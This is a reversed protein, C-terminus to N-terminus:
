GLVLGLRATRDRARSKRVKKLMRLQSEFTTTGEATQTVWFFARELDGLKAAKPGTAAGYLWVDQRFWFGFAHRTWEIRVLIDDSLKNVIVYVRVTGVDDKRRNLMPSMMVLVVESPMDKPDRSIMPYRIRGKRRLISVVINMMDSAATSYDPISTAQSSVSTM